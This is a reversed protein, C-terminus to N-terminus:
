NNFVLFAYSVRAITFIWKRLAIRSSGSHNTSKVYLVYPFESSEIKREAFLLQTIKSYNNHQSIIYM